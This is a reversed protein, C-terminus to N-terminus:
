LSSHVSTHECIMWCRYLAALHTVFVCLPNCCVCLPNCCICLAASACHMAASACHIAAASVSLRLPPVLAWRSGDELVARHPCALRKPLLPAIHKYFYLENHYLGTWQLVTRLWLRCSPLKVFLKVSSGASSQVTLWARETGVAADGVIGQPPNSEVSQM